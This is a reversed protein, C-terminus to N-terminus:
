LRWWWAKEILTKRRVLEAGAKVARWRMKVSRIKYHGKEGVRGKQQYRGPTLGLGRAFRHLEAESETSVMHGVWDILIM